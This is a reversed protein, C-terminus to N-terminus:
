RRHTRSTARRSRGAKASAKRHHLKARRRVTPPGPVAAQGPQLPARAHEAATARRPEQRVEKEHRPALRRSHPVNQMVLQREVGIKKEKLCAPRQGRRMLCRHQPSRQWRLSNAWAMWVCRIGVTTEPLKAVMKMGAQNKNTHAYFLPRQLSPSRSTKNRHRLLRLQTQPSM